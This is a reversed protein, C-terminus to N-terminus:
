DFKQTLFHDGPLLIEQPLLLLLFPIPFRDIVQNPEKHILNLELDTVFAFFFFRNIFKSHTSFRIISHAIRTFHTHLFIM